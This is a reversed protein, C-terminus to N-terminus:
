PAVTKEEVDQKEMFFSGKSSGNSTWAGDVYNKRRSVHGQMLYVDGEPTIYTFSISDGMLKYSGNCRPQESFSGTFIEIHDDSGLKVILKEKVLDSKYYGLWIGDVSDGEKFTFGTLLVVGALVGIINKM